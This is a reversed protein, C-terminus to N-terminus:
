DVPYRATVEARYTGDAAVDFPVHVLVREHGRLEVERQARLVADGSRLTAEVAVQGEGGGTNEILAEVV